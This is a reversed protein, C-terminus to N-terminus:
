RIKDGYKKHLEICDEDSLLRTYSWSFISRVKKILLKYDAFAVCESETTFSRGLLDKIEMVSSIFQGYVYKRGVKTVLLSKVECSFNVYYLLEDTKIDSKKEIKM